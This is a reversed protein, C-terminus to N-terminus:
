KIELAALTKEYENNDSTLRLYTHVHFQRSKQM